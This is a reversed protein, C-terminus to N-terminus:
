CPKKNNIVNIFRAISKLFIMQLKPPTHLRIWYAVNAFTLHLGLKNLLEKEYNIINNQICSALIRSSIIAKTMGEFTFTDVLGAADGVLAVLKGNLNRLLPKNLGVGITGGTWKLPEADIMEIYKKLNDRLNPLPKKYYGVGVNALGNGKPFVWFYGDFEPSFDFYMKDVDCKCIAEIAIAGKNNKTGYEKETQSPHGSADIVLDANLDAIKVKKGTKIKVGNLKAKKALYKEYAPRDITFLKNKMKITSSERITFTALDIRRIVVEDINFTVFDKPPPLIFGCWGEACQLPTGIENHEEYIIVEFKRSLLNAAELGALSGGIIELKEV